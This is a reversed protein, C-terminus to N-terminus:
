RLKEKLFKLSLKRYSELLTNTRDIDYTYNQSLDLENLSNVIHSELDFMHLLSKIRALGRRKNGIVIFPKGFIISFATAHFSDTIVFKADYFDKLWQEIPPQVREKLPATYDEYRSNAYFTKYSYHTAINQVISSKEITDNLIYVLLEGNSKPLLKNEFLMKYDNASLLMAPDLVHQPKCHLHKMCLEVASDERVSIGDFLKALDACRKSLSNSYEWDETGFSAAYAVRKIEKWKQAFDLYALSIPKYSYAPRWIQDSGVVFANYDGEVIDNFNCVKRTAIYEAIFRWMNKLLFPQTHNFWKEFFIRTHKRLVYKAIFRKSYILPIKYLPLKRKWPLVITEVTHGMRKLVTQLAYNQLIGGYNGLLPLTIIAIRM